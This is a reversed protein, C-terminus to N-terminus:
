EHGDYRRRYAPHIVTGPNTSRDHPHLPQIKEIQELRGQRELKEYIECWACARAPDVECKGQVNGGCPGNLLGKPCMTVPCIGGTVGLYCNHCARCRETYFGMAENVGLFTTNLGPFLPKKPYLSALFQVGVGCATSIIADYNTIFGCLPQIFELDCQREVTIEGVELHKGELGLALKLQMALLGVEKEGGALCVTVCTGCGVILIKDYPAMADKIESFPKREAIIM